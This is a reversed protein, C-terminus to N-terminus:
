RHQAKAIAKKVYNPMGAGKPKKLYKPGCVKFWYHDWADSLAAPDPIEHVRMWTLSTNIINWLGTSHRLSAYRVIKNWPNKMHKHRKRLESKYASLYGKSRLFRKFACLDTYEKAM